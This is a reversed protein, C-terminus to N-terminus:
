RFIFTIDKFTSLCSHLVVMLNSFVDNIFKLPNNLKLYIIKPERPYSERINTTFRIDNMNLIYVTHAPHAPILVLSCKVALQCAALDLDNQGVM